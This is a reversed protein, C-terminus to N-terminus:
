RKVIKAQKSKEERKGEVASPNGLGILDVLPGLHNRVHGHVELVLSLNRPPRSLEQCLGWWHGARVRKRGKVM